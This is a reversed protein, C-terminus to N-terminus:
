RRRPLCRVRRGSGTAMGYSWRPTVSRCFLVVQGQRRGPVLVLVADPEEFGTLYFLDSNQRFPYETDRSRTVERAGPIIAISHRDMMAMLKKRRRTFEAKSIKVTAKRYLNRRTSSTLRRLAFTNSSTRSNVSQTKQIRKRPEVQAIAAMDKLAEATMTPIPEGAAERLTIGQTFGSLFGQSWEAISLLREELSGDDEPMLPQFTYDADQIASLTALSLRSVFDVLDGTLDIALAKGAGCGDGFFAAGHSSQVGSGAFRGDRWPACFPQADPRRQFSIRRMMGHRCIKLPALHM